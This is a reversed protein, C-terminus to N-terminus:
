VRDGVGSAIRQAAYAPVYARICSCGGGSVGWFVQVTEHVQAKRETGPVSELSGPVGPLNEVASSWGLGM